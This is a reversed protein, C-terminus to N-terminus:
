MVTGFQTEQSGNSNIDLDANLEDIGNIIKKCDLSDKDQKDRGIIM